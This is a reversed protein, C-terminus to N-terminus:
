NRKRRGAAALSALGTGLLLMAAPEPVPNQGSENIRLNDVSPWFGNYWPANGPAYFYLQAVNATAVSITLWTDWATYNTLNVTTSWVDAGSADKAVINISGITGGGYNEWPMANMQFDNVYTAETFQISDDTDYYENYLHGGGTGNWLMGGGLTVGLNASDNFTLTTASGEGVMGLLMAGTALGALLIKKM